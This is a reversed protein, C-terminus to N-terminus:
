TGEQSQTNLVAIRLEERLESKTKEKARTPFHHPRSTAFSPSRSEPLPASTTTRVQLPHLEVPPAPERPAIVVVDDMIEVVAVSKKPRGGLNKFTRGYQTGRSFGPLAPMARKGLEELMHDEFIRHMVATLLRPRSTGLEKCVEDLYPMYKVFHMGLHFTYGGDAMLHGLVYCLTSPEM